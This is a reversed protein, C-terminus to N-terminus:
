VVVVSTVELVVLAMEVMVQAMKTVKEVIAIEVMIQELEEVVSVKEMVPEEGVDLEKRM